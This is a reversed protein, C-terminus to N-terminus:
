VHHIVEVRHHLPDVKVTAKTGVTDGLQKFISLIPMPGTNLAVPLGVGDDPASISVSYGISDALQRVAGDLYGSWQFSVVRQLEAPVVPESPRSPPPRMTRLKGLEDEVAAFSQRLALEANPMGTADVDPEVLPTTSCATVVLTGLFAILRIRPPIVTPPRDARSSDPAPLRPM